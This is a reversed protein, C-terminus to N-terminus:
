KTGNIEQVRDDSSGKLAIIMKVQTPSLMEATGSAEYEFSGIMVSQKPFVIKGNTFDGELTSYKVTTESTKEINFTRAATNSITGGSHMTTTEKISGDYQGDFDDITYNQNSGTSSTTSGSTTSSTTTTTSSSTTSSSTTSSSGSDKSDDKKCGIAITTAALFLLLLKKM